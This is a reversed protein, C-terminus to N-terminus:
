ITGSTNQISRHFVSYLFTGFYFIDFLSLSYKIFMQTTKFDPNPRFSQSWKSNSRRWCDRFFLITGINLFFHVTSKEPDSTIKPDM